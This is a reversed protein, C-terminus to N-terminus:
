MPPSTLLAASQSRSASSVADRNPPMSMAQAFAPTKGSTLSASMVSSSMSEIKAVFTFPQMSVTLAQRGYRSREPWPRTM